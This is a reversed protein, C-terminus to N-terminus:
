RGGVFRPPSQTDHGKCCGFCGCELAIPGGASGTGAPVVPMGLAERVQPNELPPGDHHWTGNVAALERSVYDHGPLPGGADDPFLQPVADAPAEPAAMTSFVDRTLDQVMSQIDLLRHIFQKKQDDTM